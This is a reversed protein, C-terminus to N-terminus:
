TKGSEHILLLGASSEPRSLSLSPRILMSASSIWEREETSWVGLKSYRGPNWDEGGSSSTLAGCTSDMWSGAIVIGQSWRRCIWSVVALKHLGFGEGELGILTEAFRCSGGGPCNCFSCM